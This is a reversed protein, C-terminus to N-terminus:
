SVVIELDMIKWLLTNDKLNMSSIKHLDGWRKQAPEEGQQDQLRYHEKSLYQSLFSLNGKM